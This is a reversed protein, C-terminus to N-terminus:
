ISEGLKNRIFHFHVEIARADEGLTDQADTAKRFLKIAMIDDHELNLHSIKETFVTTQLNGALHNGSSAQTLTYTTGNVVEGAKISSYELGWVVVGNDVNDHFWDISVEIDTSDDWRYNVHEETFAEEESSSNFDLTQFLGEFGTGPQKVDRFKFSEANLDLHLTVRAKGVLFINGNNTFYTYDNVSGFKQNEINGTIYGWQILKRINSLIM